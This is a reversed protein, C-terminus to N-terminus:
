WHKAPLFSPTIFQLSSSVPAHESLQQRPHKESCREQPEQRGAQKLVRPQSDASMM